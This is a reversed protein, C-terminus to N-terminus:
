RSRTVERSHSLKELINVPGKVTSPKLVSSSRQAEQNYMGVPQFNNLINKIRNDKSETAAM